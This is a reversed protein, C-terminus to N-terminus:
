DEKNKVVVRYKVNNLIVSTKKVLLTIAVISGLIIIIFIALLDLYIKQYVPVELAPSRLHNAGYTRIVHQLWHVMEVGPRTVRDHYIESLEKVRKTYKPNRVMEEIARRVDEALNVTLDVKIAYGNVVAKNINNFQDIYIPIGIVPVGFHIAEIASSIGGHTIFIKCNSHALISQQPAWKVIKVNDPLAPLDEEYKWIVMQKLKSFMKLLRMKVPKPIDKSQWSSGMSFYIVGNAAEDMATQLDESLTKVPTDIHYGGILKVNHPIAPISGSAQHENVFLFSANYVVDNYKPVMKNRKEFLPKFIKEYHYEEKPAIIFRKILSSKIQVWLEELRQYLNFPPVNPSLYDATYAANTPEHVLQLVQWNIGMSHSWILPCGYLSALAAYIETQFWDVVVGDFTDSGNLLKKVEENEFTSLAMSLASEQFYQIDNLNGSSKMVFDMSFTDNNNVHDKIKNMRSRALIGINESVQILRFNKNSIDKVPFPSVYTVQHGADLLYKVYSEGLMSLSKVAYPFVLLFNYCGIFNKEVGSLKKKELSTLKKELNTVKKEVGSLKKKELSTLKKELNTVKKEIGSLKKKELSTLKKELNTVKKEVGSLKKKELSTLKKELNTVKKEIGSLKKKELSTLKKELNTVKKEVGSLKKKELSTLKKELNTVKKEIGSLKKVIGTHNKQM